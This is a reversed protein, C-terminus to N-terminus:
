PINLLDLNILSCKQLDELNMVYRPYLYNMASSQQDGLSYAFSEGGRYSSLEDCIRFLDVFVIGDM